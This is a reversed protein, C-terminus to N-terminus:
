TQQPAKPPSPKVMKIRPSAKVSNSVTATVAGAAQMAKLITKANKDM